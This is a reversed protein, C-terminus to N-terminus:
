HVVEGNEYVEKLVSDLAALVSAKRNSSGELFKLSPLLSIVQAALYTDPWGRVGEDVNQELSLLMIFLEKKSDELTNMEEIQHFVKLSDTKVEEVFGKDIDINHEGVYSDLLELFKRQESIVHNINDPATICRLVWPAALGYLEEITDSTVDTSEMITRASNNFRETVKQVIESLNKSEGVIERFEKLCTILDKRAIIKNEIEHIDTTTM